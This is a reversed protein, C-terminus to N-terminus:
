PKYLFTHTSVAMDQVVESAAASTLQSPLASQKGRHVRRLRRQLAGVAAVAESTVSDGFYDRVDAGDLAEEAYALARLAFGVAKRRERQASASDLQQQQQQQQHLQQQQQIPPPPPASLHAQQRSGFHQQQHFALQQHQNAPHHIFGYGVVSMNGTSPDATYMAHAPQQQPHLFSGDPHQQFTPELMLHQPPVHNLTVVNTALLQQHHHHQLQQQVRVRLGRSEEEEQLLRQVDQLLEQQMRESSDDDASLWLQLEKPPTQHLEHASRMLHQRAMACLERVIADDSVTSLADDHDDHDSLHADPCLEAHLWGARLVRVPVAAWVEELLEMADAVHPLRGLALGAASHPRKLARQLLRYREEDSRELGSLAEHFLAVKYRRKLERVVGLQLPQFLAFRNTTTTTTTTTSDGGSDPRSLSSSTSGGARTPLFCTIISAHQFPELSGAPNDLLLLVPRTTRAHVAPAFVHTCWYQFTSNDCWVERQSVYKTAGVQMESTSLANAAAFCGPHSENGVVLLPIKHSGTGNACVLVLVREADGKAGGGAASTDHADASAGAAERGSSNAFAPLLLTPLLRYFLRAESLSYVFEPGFQQVTRQLHAVKEAMAPDDRWKLENKRAKSGSENDDDDDDGDDDSEETTTTASKRRVPANPPDVRGDSTASDVTGLAVVDAGGAAASPGSGSSRASGSGGGSHLAGPVLGYRACFRYYWGNSAKFDDHGHHKAALLKAKQQVHAVLLPIRRARISCIWRFLEDEFGANKAFGGRQRHDRLTGADAGAGSYRKKVAARVKMLKGIAAPSVGYRRACEARSLPAVPDELRAIIDMRQRDTLRKGRGKTSTPPRPLEAPMDAIAAAIAGSASEPEALAPAHVQEM